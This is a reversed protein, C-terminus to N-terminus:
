SRLIGNVQYLFGGAHSRMCSNFDLEREMPLVTSRRAHTWQLVQTSLVAGDKCQKLNIVLRGNMPPAGAPADMSVEAKLPERKLVRYFGCFLDGEQFSLSAIHGQSFSQRQEPDRAVLWMFWAQPFHAFCAMNRRVLQTFHQEVDQTEFITSGPMYRENKKHVIRFDDPTELIAQPLSVLEGTAHAHEREATSVEASSVQQALRRHFGRAWLYAGAIAAASGTVLLRYTM